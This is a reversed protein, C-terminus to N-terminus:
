NPTYFINLLRGASLARRKDVGKGLYPFLLAMMSKCGEVDNNIVIEPNSLIVKTMFKDSLTKAVLTNGCLDLSNKYIWKYNSKYFRDWNSICDGLLESNKTKTMDSPKM